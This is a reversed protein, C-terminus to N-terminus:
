LSRAIYLSYVNWTFIQEMSRTISLPNITECMEGYDSDSLSQPTDPVEVTTDSDAPLPGDWDVGFSAGQSFLDSAPRKAFIDHFTM